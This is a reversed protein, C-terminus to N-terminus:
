CGVRAHGQLRFTDDWSLEAPHAGTLAHFFESAAGPNPTPADVSVAGAGHHGVPSTSAAKPPTNLESRQWRSRPRDSTNLM